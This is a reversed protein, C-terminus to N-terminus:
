SERRGGTKSVAPRRWGNRRPQLVVAPDLGLARLQREVDAVFARIGADVEAWDFPGLVSGPRYCSAVTWGASSPTIEVTDVEELSMSDFQFSARPTARWSSLLWALEVVPFTPEEFLIADDSAIRLTGDVAILFDAQTAGRLEAADLRDVTIHLRM